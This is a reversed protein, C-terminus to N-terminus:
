GLWVADAGVLCKPRSSLPHQVPVRDGQRLLGSSLCSSRSVWLGPTTKPSDGERLRLKRVPSRQMSRAPDACPGGAGSVQDRPAAGAVSAPPGGGQAAGRRWGVGLVPRANGKTQSSEM